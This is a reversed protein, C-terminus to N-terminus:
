IPQKGHGASNDWFRISGQVFEVAEHEFGVMLTNAKLQFSSKQLTEIVKNGGAQLFKTFIRKGLGV